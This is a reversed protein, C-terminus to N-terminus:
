TLLSKLFTLKYYVDLDFENTTLNHQLFSYIDHCKNVLPECEPWTKSALSADLLEFLLRALMKKQVLSIQESALIQESFEERNMRQIASIESGSYKLVAEELERQFKEPDSNRRLMLLQALVKGFEEFQRQIYDKKYM